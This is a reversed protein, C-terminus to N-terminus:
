CHYKTFRNKHFAPSANAEASQTSNMCCPATRVFITGKVPLVRPHREKIQLYFLGAYFSARIVRFPFLLQKVNEM